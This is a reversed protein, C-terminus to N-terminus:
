VSTYWKIINESFQFWDVLIQLMDQNHFLLWSHYLLFVFNLYIGNHLSIMDHLLPLFPCPHLFISLHIGATMSCDNVRVWIWINNHLALCQLRFPHSVFDLPLCRCIGTCSAPPLPTSNQTLLNKRPSTFCSIQGFCLRSRCHLM